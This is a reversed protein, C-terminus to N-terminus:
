NCRCLLKTSVKIDSDIECTLSCGFSLFYILFILFFSLQNDLSVNYLRQWIYCFYWIIVLESMIKDSDILLHRLVLLHFSIFHFNDLFKFVNKQKKRFTSQIFKTLHLLLVM